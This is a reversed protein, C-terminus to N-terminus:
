CHWCPRRNGCTGRKAGPLGEKARGDVGRRSGGGERPSRRGDRRDERWSGAGLVGLRVSGLRRHAGAEGGGGEEEGGQSRGSRLWCPVLVSSAASMLKAPRSERAVKGQDGGAIWSFGGVGRSGGQVNQQSRQRGKGEPSFCSIPRPEGRRGPRQGCGGWGAASGGGGRQLVGTGLTSMPSEVLVISHSSRVEKRLEAIEARLREVNQEGTSVQSVAPSPRTFLASNSASRDSELGVTSLGASM